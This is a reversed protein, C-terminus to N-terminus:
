DQRWTGGWVEKLSPSQHPYTLQFLGKGALTAKTMHKIVAISVGTLVVGLIFDWCSLHHPLLIEIGQVWSNSTSKPLM